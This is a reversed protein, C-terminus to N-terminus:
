RTRADTAQIHLAGEAMTVDDPGAAEWHTVAYNPLLLENVADMAALHAPSMVFEYMAETSSWVALTRGSGCSPSQALQIAVLGPQSALQAQIAGFYQVYKEMVAEGPRPMGYTASVTYSSGEPPPLLAGTAPEVGPGSLPDAELDAELVGGTCGAPPADSPADSPTAGTDSGCGSLLAALVAAALARSSRDLTENLTRKTTTM